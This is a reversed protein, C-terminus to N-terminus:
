DLTLSPHLPPLNGHGILKVDPSKIQPSYRGPDVVGTVVLRDGPAYTGRADM